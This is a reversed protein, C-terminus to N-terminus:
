QIEEKIELNSALANAGRNIKCRKIKVSSEIQPAARLAEIVTIEDQKSDLRVFKTKIEPKPQEVNVTVEVPQPALRIQTDAGSVSNEIYILAAAAIEKGYSDEVVNGNAFGRLYEASLQEVIATCRQSTQVINITPYGSVASLARAFEFYARVSPTFTERILEKESEVYDTSRIKSGAKLHRRVLRTVGSELMDFAAKRAAILSEARQTADDDATADTAKTADVMNLPVLYIQGAGNPLPNLNEIARWEDANIIGNMRQIQLAENRSKADGRLLGDLLFEAFHNEKDKESFLTRWVAGEWRKAWPLITDTVFEISQHEINSFTAHELDGIKHPQVRFVRAIQELSFKRNEIYQADASTMGIQKWEMGEELIAVKHANHIGAHAQQWSDKIRKFQDEDGIKGPHTLIGGPRGFQSFLKGQYEEQAQANAITDANVQIPSIGVLGDSSLGKIHLMDRSFIVRKAGNNSRHLYLIEGEPTLTVEVNEPHLPVLQEVADRNSRFVEAYANGRLLCHATLMEIFELSSQWRNPENHLIRYLPHQPDRVKGGGDLRKYTILPLTALTEAILRVCAYVACEKMASEPTVFIGSASRGLATEYWSDHDDGPTEARKTFLRRFTPFGFVNM